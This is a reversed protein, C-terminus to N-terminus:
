TKNAQNRAGFIRQNAEEATIGGGEYEELIQSIEPDLNKASYRHGFLRQYFATVKRTPSQEVGKKKM